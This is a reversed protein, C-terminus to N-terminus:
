VAQAVRAEFAPPAFGAEILGMFSLLGGWGYLPHTHPTRGGRGDIASYNEAVVREIRWNDVIMEVSKEVLRRRAVDSGYRLLGLYTLFSNPPWIRGRQYLQDAFASDDRSSMPLIWEGDYKAPNLLYGQAMREAQEDTAVNALMPYFSTLSHKERWAGNDTRRNLYIGKEESWLQGLREAYRDRRARLEEAERLWGLAEALETLAECDAVYLGNLGVDETEMLHTKPDFPSQDYMSANDLGSELAAGSATNPQVFEAPDGIIPEFPHSGLSLSGIDNRRHQDWWRNWTLLAPWAARLAELNPARRHMGLFCIGGVPPQSRDLSRRGTGQTVNPVFQGDVMARFTELGCAYALTPDDLSIMWAMLFTDWCFIAYGGRWCNWDRAVTCIVRRHKPEYLINWGLCAQMAEHAERLRGYREHLAVQKARGEAVLREAEKVDVARGTAIAVPRDLRVAVYPSAVPLNPEIVPEGHVHIAIQRSPLYATITHEDARVAYGDRGWLTAAHVTLIRQWPDSQIPTVLAAWDDGAAATEVRYRAGRLNVELETYSGDYAHLGPRVEIVNGVPLQKDMSTLQTGPTRTVVQRGFHADNMWVLKDPAAFGLSIGLGEPLLVHRLVSRTDWTNWGRALTATLRDAMAIADANSM